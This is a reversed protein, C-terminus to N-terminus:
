TAELWHPLLFYMFMYCRSAMFLSLMTSYTAILECLTLPPTGGGKVRAGQGSFYYSLPM